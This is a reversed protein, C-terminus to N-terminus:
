PPPVAPMPAPFWTGGLHAGPIVPDDQARRFIRDRSAEALRRIRDLDVGVLRGSRKVIRGRVLVTDVTGPHASYVIAGYPNNLPLMGPTDTRLVVLDADKGPALTGTRALLGTARAGEVTAFELVERCSPVLADVVTGKAAAAANGLAREAAITSRMAGFIDGSNLTCVDISLSPRVGVALLRGTAPWGHGMSLEIDASVSATGGSAAIMELEDDALTNCHVYTVDDGLLAQERMWAVPRTRGWEGDGVHISIRLGLDRALRFDGLTTEKTAFQPGRLAMAMTVLQDDGAFYRSRIRRADEPHPVTSPLSAWQPAGGGHAFVARVGSELLGEVAADAHEPTALNHSWDLLTTIGSDLAELAGLLNGIHTDEPQFHKSLGAHIGTMYHGHTWDAAIHRIVAQWTHRHTDVFGPLVIADPVEVVEAGATEAPAIRTGIARITGDEILVEGPTLTGAAQDMTLVVAGRVLLRGGPGPHVPSGM